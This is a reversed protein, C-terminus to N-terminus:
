TKEAVVEVASSEVTSTIVEVKDIDTLLTIENEISSVVAQANSLQENLELLKSEKNVGVENIGTEKRKIKKGDKIYEIEKAM